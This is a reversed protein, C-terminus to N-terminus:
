TIGGTTLQIFRDNIADYRHLANTTVDVYLTNGYKPYNGINAISDIEMIGPGSMFKKIVIFDKELTAEPLSLVWSNYEEETEFVVIPQSINAVLRGDKNLIM